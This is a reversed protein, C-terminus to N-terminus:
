FHCDVLINEMSVLTLAFSAVLYLTVMKLHLATVDLVVVSNEKFLNLSIIVKNNLNHLRFKPLTSGYQGFHKCFLTPRIIELKLIIILVPHKNFNLLNIVFMPRYKCVNM